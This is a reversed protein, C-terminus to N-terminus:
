APKIVKMDGETFVKPVIPFSNVTLAMDVDKPKGLTERVLVACECISVRRKMDEFDYPKGELLNKIAEACEDDELGRKGLRGLAVLSVVNPKSEHIYNVVADLNVFSALIIEQAKAADIISQTANNSRLVIRKGAFDENVVESPSNIHHFADHNHGHEGEGVLVYGEKEYPLVEEPTRVPVIEVAGKDFLIPITTCARLVDIIVATGEAERAAETTYLIKIEMNPRHERENQLSMERKDM